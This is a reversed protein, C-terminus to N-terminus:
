PLTKLIGKRIYLFLEKEQFIFRKKLNKTEQFMLVAKKQSFTLFKEPNGNGSTCSVKGPYIEKLKQAEPPPSTCPEMKPFILFKKPSHSLFNCKRFHLSNKKWPKRKRFILPKKSFIYFVKESYSSFTRTIKVCMRFVKEAEEQLCLPAMKKRCLYRTIKSWM